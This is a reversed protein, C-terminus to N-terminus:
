VRYKSVVEKRYQRFLNTDGLDLDKGEWRSKLVQAGFLRLGTEVIALETIDKPTTSTGYTYDVRIASRRVDTRYSDKLISIRGTNADYDFWYTQGLSGTTNYVDNWTPDQGEASLTTQVKTVAQIPRKDLYFDKKAFLDSDHYENTVSYYSGGNDDFVRNTDSDIKAEVMEGIRVIQQTVIGKDLDEERITKNFYDLFEQVAFYRLSPASTVAALTLDQNTGGEGSAITYSESAEFGQYMVYYTFKDGVSWDDSLDALNFLVVGEVDTTATEQENTSENRLYVRVDAKPTTGDTDYVTVRFVYPKGM